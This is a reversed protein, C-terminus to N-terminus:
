DDVDEIDYNQPNAILDDIQKNLEKMDVHSTEEEQQAVITAGPTTTVGLDTRISKYFDEINALSGLSLKINDRMEKQLMSQVEYMRSNSNGMDIDRMISILTKQSSQVLFELKSYYDSDKKMKESIYPHKLLNEDGLYLEALSNIINTSDKKIDSLQQKYDVIGNTDPQLAPLDTTQAFLDEPNLNEIKKSIDIEIAELENKIRNQEDKKM